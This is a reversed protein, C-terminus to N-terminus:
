PLTPVVLGFYASCLTSSKRPADTAIVSAAEFCPNLGYLLNAFACKEPGVFFAIM